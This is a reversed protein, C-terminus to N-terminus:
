HESERSNSMKNPLAATKRPAPVPPTKRAVVKRTGPADLRSSLSEIESKVAEIEAGHERKLGEPIAGLCEKARSLYYRNNVKGKRGGDGAWELYKRIVQIMGKYANIEMDDIAFVDEYYRVASTGGTTLIDGRDYVAEAKVLLDEIRKAKLDEV